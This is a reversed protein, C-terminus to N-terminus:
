CFLSLDPLYLKATTVGTVKCVGYKLQKNLTRYNRPLIHWRESEFENWSHEIYQYRHKDLLLRDWPAGGSEFTCWSSWYRYNMAATQISHGSWVSCLALIYLLWLYGWVVYLSLLPGITLSGRNLQFRVNCVNQLLYAEPAYRWNAYVTVYYVHIYLM